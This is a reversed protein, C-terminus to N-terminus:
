FEHRHDSRKEENKGRDRIADHGSKVAMRVRNTQEIERRQGRDCKARRGIEWRPVFESHRHDREQDGIHHEVSM